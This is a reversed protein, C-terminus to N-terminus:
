WKYTTPSLGRQSGRHARMPIGEQDGERPEKGQTARAREEKEAEEYSAETPQTRARSLHSWTSAETNWAHTSLELTDMPQAQRRACDRSERAAKM